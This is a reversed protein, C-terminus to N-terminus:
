DRIFLLFDPWPHDLLTISLSVSQYVFVTQSLFMSDTVSVYHWHCVCVSLGLKETISFLQRHYVYVTQSLFLSDRVSVSQRQCVSVKETLWLNYIVSIYQRHCVFNPDWLFSFFFIYINTSGQKCPTYKGCFHQIVLSPIRRTWLAFYKFSCCSKVQMKLLGM